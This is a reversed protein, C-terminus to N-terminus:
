VIKYNVDHESKWIKYKELDVGIGKLCLTIVAADDILGLVPIFDPILDIPSLVYLLAGIVAAITTWPLERYTGNAYDRILSFFLKINEAFKELPGHVKKLIKNEKKLVDSVDDESVNESYKNLQEEAQKETINTM